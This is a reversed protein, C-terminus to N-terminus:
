RYIYIYLAMEGRRHNIEEIIFLIIIMVNEGVGRVIASHCICCLFAVLNFHSLVISRLLFRCIQFRGWLIASKSHSPALTREESMASYSLSPAACIRKYKGSNSYIMANVVWQSPSAASHVTLLGQFVHRRLHNPSFLPTLWPELDAGMTDCRSSILLCSFVALLRSFSIENCFSNGDGTQNLASASQM